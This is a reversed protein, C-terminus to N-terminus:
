LIGLKEKIAQLDKEISMADDKVLRDLEEKKSNRDRAIEGYAKALAEQDEVKSKMRELMTIIGNSDVQAM